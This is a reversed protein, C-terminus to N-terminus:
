YATYTPASTKFPLTKSQFAFSESLFKIIVLFNKLYLHSLAAIISFLSTNLLSYIACDTFRYLTFYNLEFCLAALKFTPIAVKFNRTTTFNIMNFHGKM